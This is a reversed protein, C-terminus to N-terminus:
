NSRSAWHSLAVSEVPLSALGISPCCRFFPLSSPFFDALSLHVARHNTAQLCLVLVFPPIFLRFFFQFSLLTSLNWAPSLQFACVQSSSYLLSSKKPAKEGRSLVFISKVQMVGERKKPPRLLLGTEWDAWQVPSLSFFIDASTM